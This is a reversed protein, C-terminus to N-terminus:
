LSFALQLSRAPQTTPLQAPERNTAECYRSFSCQLCHNGPTTQWQQDQRLQAALQSIVRTVQRQHQRTARYRVKEGTRLFLLTLYKLSQQYTQELALSYLGLQLSIEDEEPLKAEKSSKYTVLELGEPLCDIRDYRGVIQFELNAVQLNAQIKGDIGFSQRMATQSAIFRDYYGDLIARGERVQQLTLATSCQDWCKHFWRRDPIADHYHWDRHCKALTQNLAAGFTASGFCEKSTVRREYRLYYSYPCRQYTRLKNASIPYVM